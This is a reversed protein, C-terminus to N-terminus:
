MDYWHATVFELQQPTYTNDIREFISVVESPSASLETKVVGLEYVSSVVPFIEDVPLCNFHRHQLLYAYARSYIEPDYETDTKGPDCLGLTGAMDRVQQWNLNVIVPPADLAEREHRPESISNSRRSLIHQRLEVSPVPVLFHTNDSALISEVEDDMIQVLEVLRNGVLPLEGILIHEEASYEKHWRMVGARAWLGVAKRIAAHTVGDVEPYKRMIDPTQFAERTVDWQLLHVVRGAKDAMNALQQIYLSKGVGSLGAIFVCRKNCAQAFAAYIGSGQPLIVDRM